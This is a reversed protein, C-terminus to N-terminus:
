GGQSSDAPPCGAAGLDELTVPPTTSPDLTQSPDWESTGTVETPEPPLIENTMDLQIVNVEIAFIDYQDKPKM